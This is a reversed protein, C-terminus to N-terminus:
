ANGLGVTLTFLMKTVILLLKSNFFHDFDTLLSILFNQPSDITPSLFPRSDNTKYLFLKM